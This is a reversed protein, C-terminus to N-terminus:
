PAEIPFPYACTFGVSALLEDYSYEDFYYKVPEGLGSYQIEFIDLISGGSEQSSTREYTLEQGEPGRLAALYAEERSPGNMANGGVRVPNEETLGYTQDKSVQCGEDSPPYFFLSDLIQDCAAQGAGDWTDSPGMCIATMGWGPQHNLVLLTGTLKDGRNTATFGAQLGEAQNLTIETPQDVKFGQIQGAYQESVNEFATSLDVGQDPEGHIYAYIDGVGSLDADFEDSRVTYLPPRIFGYGAAHIKWVESEPIELQNELGNAQPQEIKNMMTTGLSDLADIAEQRKVTQPDSTFFIHIKYNGICSAIAYAESGKAFILTEPPLTSGVPLKVPSGPPDSQLEAVLQACAQPDGADEVIAALMGTDKEGHLLCMSGTCANGECDPGFANAICGLPALPLLAGIEDASPLLMALDFPAEAEAPLTATGSPEPTASPSPAPTDTPLSTSSASPM